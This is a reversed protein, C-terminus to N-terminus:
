INCICKKKNIETHIVTMEYVKKKIMRFEIGTDQTFMNKTEQEIKNKYFSKLNKQNIM